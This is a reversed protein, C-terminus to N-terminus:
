FSDHVLSISQAREAYQTEFKSKQLEGTEENRETIPGFYSSM